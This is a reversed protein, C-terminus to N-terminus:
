PIESSYRIVQRIIAMAALCYMSHFQFRFRGFSHGLYRAHPKTCMERFSIGRCRRATSFTLSSVLM